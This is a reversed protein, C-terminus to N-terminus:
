LGLKAFFSSADAHRSVGIGAEADRLARETEENPIHRPEGCDPCLYSGGAHEEAFHLLDTAEDESLADVLVHLREKTTM